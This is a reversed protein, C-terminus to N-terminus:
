HPLAEPLMALYGEEDFDPVVARQVMFGPGLGLVVPAIRTAWEDPDGEVRDPHAAAWEALSARVTERARM